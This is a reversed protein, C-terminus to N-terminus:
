IKAELGEIWLKHWKLFRDLGIHITAGDPLDVGPEIYISVGEQEVRPWAQGEPPAGPELVPLIVTGGCCGHRPSTRLMLEGNHQEKLYALAEADIIIPM